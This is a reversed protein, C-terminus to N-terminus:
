NKAACSTVGNTCATITREILCTTYDPTLRAATARASSRMQNLDGPSATLSKDLAQFMEDGIDPRFIWGNIGDRVLESVAQGYVSGLVPLGAAMAENVVVGWTDALTPLVFIGARAYVSPLDEYTVNGLLRLQVNAPMAFQALKEGLPGEGALIWEINRDPRADAWRSLVSLFQLLGKREILQGVYLLKWASELTRVLPTLLFPAIDTTYAIKFIKREAVGLSRLYRAGSEGTVLFGDVGYHLLKRIGNRIAGRGHETSEAIEAWVILKTDRHLQRYICALITRVGMEWSIVVDARFRRLQALTDIPLHVYLSESFGKPHRWRKNLTVTKQVVVDLGEWELRWNRNSEMPVSLLVRLNPYRRALRDLVPKHYPPIVNTLLAVRPAEDAATAAKERLMAETQVSEPM